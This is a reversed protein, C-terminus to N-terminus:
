ASSYWVLWVYFFNDRVNVFELLLSYKLCVLMLYQQLSGTKVEWSQNKLPPSRDLAPARWITALHRMDGPEGDLRGAVGHSLSSRNRWHNLFLGTTLEWGLLLKPWMVMRIWDRYGTTQSISITWALVLGWGQLRPIADPAGLGCPLTSLLPMAQWFSILVSNPFCPSQIPLLFLLDKWALKLRTKLWPTSLRNLTISNLPESWGCHIM